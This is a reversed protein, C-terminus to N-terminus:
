AAIEGKARRRVVVVSTIGAALAGGGVLSWLLLSSDAGTSALGTGTNALATGANNSTSALAAGQVTVSSTAVNGSVAGKATLTYTGAESISLQITFNGNSDATANFTKSGVTITIAEGPTFGTGSFSFTEGVAPSGDSVVGTSKPSAYGDAMAPVAGMLAISGALTIAALTKKM